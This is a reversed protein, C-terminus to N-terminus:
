RVVRRAGKAPPSVSATGKRANIRACDELSLHQKRKGYRKILELAEKETLPVKVEEAMKLLCEATLIGNKNVNETYLRKLAEDTLPDGRKRTPVNKLYEHIKGTNVFGKQTVFKQIFKDEQHLVRQKNYKKTIATIYSMSLQEPYGTKLYSLLEDSPKLPNEKTRRPSTLKSRKQIM